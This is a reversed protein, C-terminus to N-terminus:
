VLHTTIDTNVDIHHVLDFAARHDLVLREGLWQWGETELDDRLYAKGAETLGRFSWVSGGNAVLIDANTEQTM